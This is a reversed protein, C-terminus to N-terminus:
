SYSLYCLFSVKISVLALFSNTRCQDKLSHEEELNICLLFNM